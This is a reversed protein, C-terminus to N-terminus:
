FFLLKKKKKEGNQTINLQQCLSSAVSYYHNRHPRVGVWIQPVIRQVFFICAWVCVCVCVITCTYLLISFSFLLQLKLLEQFKVDRWGCLTVEPRSLGFLALPPQWWCVMWASGWDMLMLWGGTGDPLMGVEQRCSRKCSPTRRGGCWWRTSCGEVLPLLLARPPLLYVHHKVDVSGMLSILSPSFPTHLSITYRHSCQWWWFSKRM